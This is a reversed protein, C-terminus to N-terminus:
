RPLVAFSLKQIHGDMAGIQIPSCRCAFGHAGFPLCLVAWTLFEEGVPITPTNGRRVTLEQGVEFTALAQQFFQEARRAESTGNESSRHSPEQLTGDQHRDIPAPMCVPSLIDDMSASRKRQTTPTKAVVAVPVGGPLGEAAQHRHAREAPEDAASGTQKVIAQQNQSGAPEVDPVIEHWDSRAPVAFPGAAGSTM